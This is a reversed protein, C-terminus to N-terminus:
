TQKKYVKIEIEQEPGNWGYYENDYFHQDEIEEGVAVFQIESFEGIFPQIRVKMTECEPPKQEIPEAHDWSEGCNIIYEKYDDNYSVVFAEGCNGDDCWVKCLVGAHGAKHAERLWQPADEPLDLYKYKDTMKEHRRQLEIVV